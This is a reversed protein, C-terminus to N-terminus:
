QQYHSVNVDFADEFVDLRMIQPCCDGEVCHTVIHIM